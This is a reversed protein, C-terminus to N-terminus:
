LTSEKKRALDREGRTVLEASDSSITPVTDELEETGAVAAVPDAPLAEVSARFDQSGDQSPEDSWQSPESAAGRDSGEDKEEYPKEGDEM